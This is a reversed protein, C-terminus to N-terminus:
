LFHWAMSVLVTTGAIALVFRWRRAAVPILLGATFILDAPNWFTVLFCRKLRVCNGGRLSYSGYLHCSALLHVHSRKFEGLAPFAGRVMNGSHDATSIQWSKSNTRFEPSNWGGDHLVGLPAVLIGVRRTGLINSHRRALAHLFGACTKASGHDHSQRVLM